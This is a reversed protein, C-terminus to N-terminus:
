LATCHFSIFNFSFCVESPVYRDGLEVGRMVCGWPATAYRLVDELVCGDWRRPMDLLSLFHVM